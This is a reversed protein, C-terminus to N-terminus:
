FFGYKAVGLVGAGLVLWASNANRYRLLVVASVLALVVTFWDVIASRGLQWTVLAMLALSAVNIGDLVAGAVRSARLKPLLPASVAVFFFAPLFIGVTAAVAGPTGHLIYGIFTATTFVPGPTIQGVAVADLLQQQTLWHYREVLDARLFALLVYGSGFLVSGIKAFILFIPWLAVSPGAAGAVAALLGAKSAPGFLLARGRPSNWQVSLGLFGGVALVLLENVGIAALIVATVAVIGLWTTKVASRGLKWLAQLIVAIVVPKVGYLLGAAQPLAGWRVYAWALIGVLVAAPVIFCTGAVLLGPWGARRHGIHIAMETSNPGPIFNVASLYDLFEQETLWHRRRVFEEDMMAIHVAPGGFATTGLKLFVLAIESLPTSTARADVVNDSM